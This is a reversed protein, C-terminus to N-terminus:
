KTKDPRICISFLEFNTTSPLVIESLDLGCLYRRVRYTKKAQEFYTLVLVNRSPIRSALQQLMLSLKEKIFSLLYELVIEIVQFVM